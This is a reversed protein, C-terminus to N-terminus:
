IKKNTLILDASITNIQKQIHPLSAEKLEKMEKQLIKIQEQLAAMELPQAPIQLSPVSPSRKTASSYLSSQRDRAEKITIGELFVMKIIKKMELYAPCIYSTSDHSNSGCNICQTHCEEVPLHSKGCKQCSHSKNSCRTITHGLRFCNRCRFPTPISIHGPSSM